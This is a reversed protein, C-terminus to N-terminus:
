AGISKRWMDLGLVVREDLWRHFRREVAAPDDNSTFLFPDSSLPVVEGIVAEGADSTDKTYFMASCALVGTEGRGMGHFSFLVEVRNDMRVVLSAWAQHLQFNAFYNLKKVCQVIQYYNFKAQSDGAAAGTAFASFDRNGTHVTVDVQAAVDRLKEMAWAHLVTATKFLQTRRMAEEAKQRSFKGKVAALVQGIAVQEFRIDEALSFAEKIAKAQMRGFLGVLPRLDGADAQRLADIYDTRDTRTVVLPFWHAKLFVLTALCRAVRGNGDTFPHVLTFRHHLWAAEIYPPVARAEHEFHWRLLNEMESAVHEPPCFEFIYDGPGQVNNPLKKWEGRPLARDVFQGLTDIAEYTPQHQTLTQHLEKVYSTGFPRKGSVFDYLGEIVTHQDQIMAMVERPSRDTDEHSLLSADLGKEILTKTAGESISYLRELIGTEIAWQRRLRELFDKYYDQERM